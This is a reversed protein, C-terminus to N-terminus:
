PIVHFQVPVMILGFLSSLFCDSGFIGVPVSGLPDLLNRVCALLNVMEFNRSIAYTGLEVFHCIISATACSFQRRHAGLLSWFNALARARALFKCDLFRM